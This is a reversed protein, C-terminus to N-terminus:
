LALAAAEEGRDLGDARRGQFRHPARARRFCVSHHGEEDESVRLGGDSVNRARNNM